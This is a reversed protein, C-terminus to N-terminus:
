MGTSGNAPRNVGYKYLLRLEPILVRIGGETEGEIEAKNGSLYLDTLVLLGISYLLAGTKPVLCELTDKPDGIVLGIDELTVRPEQRYYTGPLVEPGEHEQIHLVLVLEVLVENEADHGRAKIVRGLAVEDALVHRRNLGGLFAIKIPESSLKNKSDSKKRGNKDSKTSTAHNKKSQKNQAAVNTKASKSNKSKVSQQKKGQTINKNKKKEVNSNSENKAGITKQKSKKVTKTATQKNESM